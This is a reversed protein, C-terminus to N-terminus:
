SRNRFDVLQRDAAVECPVGLQTLELAALRDAAEADSVVLAALGLSVFPDVDGAVEVDRDPAAQALPDGAVDGLAVLDDDGSAQAPALVLDVAVLALGDVDRGVADDGDLPGGGFM